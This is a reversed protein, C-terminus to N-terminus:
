NTLFYLDALAIAAAAEIIVPVRLAICSDHRGGITIKTEKGSGLDITRQKKGISATPRVAVKFLIENGNSIGGNIGGANNTETKGDTGLIIDNFESGYMKAAKFGAGFEIGKIGPIAFIIHSIYSEISDFFPNGYGIPVNNIRCEILGGISDNKSLADAISIDIDSFKGVSLISTEYSIDSLIKKAIVGAAVIGVTLRGSFHGGGRPDAFDNYKKQAVFDAHGPRPKGKLHSYDASRLNSNEFEILIPSGTTHGNYVGSRIRPVDTEKRSTTGLMGPMRRQLDEDFDNASIKIGPPCGDILVGVSPGHSEGFINVRYLRGFTNM